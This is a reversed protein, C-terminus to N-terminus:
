DEQPLYVLQYFYAKTYKLEDATLPRNIEGSLTKQLTFYKNILNTNEISNVTNLKSLVIDETAKSFPDLSLLIKTKTNEAENYEVNSLSRMNKKKYFDLLHPNLIDSIKDQTNMAWIQITAGTQPAFQKTKRKQTDKSTKPRGQQPQGPTKSSPINGGGPAPSSIKFELGNKQGTKKKDLELGVESPTVIGTQLAIKKLNDELQPNYYPGSKSVM